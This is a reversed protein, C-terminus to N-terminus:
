NSKFAVGPFQVKPIFEFVEEIAADTSDIKNEDITYLKKIAGFENSTSRNDPIFFFEDNGGYCMDKGLPAINITNVLKGQMNYVLLSRLNKNGQSGGQENFAMPLTDCYIYNVGDCYIFGGNGIKGIEKKDSGDQNSMYMKGDDCRVILKGNCASLYIINNGFVDAKEDIINYKIAIGSVKTMSGDEFGITLWYVGNQYGLLRLTREYVGNTEYLLTPTSNIHSMDLRYLKCTTKTNAEQGQIIANDDITFYIYGRHIIWRDPINKFTYIKKRQTGDLSVQYISYINDVSTLSNGGVYLNENYYVLNLNYEYMCANCDMVKFSDTEDTHLCNPKNCLIVPKMTKKDMYYLFVSAPGSFFYYGDKTEAMSQAQANKEFYYQDDQGLLYTDGLNAPASTCGSLIWFIVLMATFVINKKM